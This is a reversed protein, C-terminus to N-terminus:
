LPLDSAREDKRGKEEKEGARDWAYAGSLRAHLAWCCAAVVIDIVAAGDAAAAAEREQM